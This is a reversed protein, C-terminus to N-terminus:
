IENAAIVLWSVWISAWRPAFSSVTSTWVSYTSSSSAGATQDIQSSIEKQAKWYCDKYNIYWTPYKHKM